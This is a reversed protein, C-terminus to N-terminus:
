RFCIAPLGALGAHLRRGHEGIGEPSLHIADAKDLGTMTVRTTCVDQDALMRQAERVDSHGRMYPNDEEAGLVVPLQARGSHRRFHAILQELRAQYDARSIKNKADSEGRIWILATTNVPHGEESLRAEALTLLEIMLDYLGGEGPRSWDTALATSALAVKFVAVPRGARKLARALTVEPGFHGAEFRGRQPGLHAWHGPAVSAPPWRWLGHLADVVRRRLGPRDTQTGGKAIAQELQRRSSVYFFLIEKDLEAHQRVYRGADGMFGQANSQGAVVILELAESAQTVSAAALLGPLLAVPLLGRDCRHHRM